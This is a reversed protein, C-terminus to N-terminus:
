LGVSLWGDGQVCALFSALHKTPLGSGRAEAKTAGLEPYLCLSHVAPTRAGGGWGRRDRRRGGPGLQLWQWTTSGAAKTKAQRNKTAGLWCHEKKEKKNMEKRRMERPPLRCHKWGLSPPSSEPGTQIMQYLDWCWVRYKLDLKASRDGPWVGRGVPPNGPVM